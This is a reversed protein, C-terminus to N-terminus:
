TLVRPPLRIVLERSTWLYYMGQAMLATGKVGIWVTREYAVSMKTYIRDIAIALEDLYNKTKTTEAYITQSYKRINRSIEDILDKLPTHSASKFFYTHSLELATGLFLAYNRLEAQPRYHPQSPTFVWWSARHTQIAGEQLEAQPRNNSPTFVWWSARHTQITPPSLEVDEELFRSFKKPDNRFVREGLKTSNNAYQDLLGYLEQFEPNLTWEAQIDHIAQQTPGSYVVLARKQNSETWEKTMRKIMADKNRPHQFCAVAQRSNSLFRWTKEGALNQFLRDSYSAANDPRGYVYCEKMSDIQGIVNFITNAAERNTSEFWKVTDELLHVNAQKVYYFCAIFYATHLILALTHWM